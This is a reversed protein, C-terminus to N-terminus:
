RGSPYIPSWSHDVMLRTPNQSTVACKMEGILLLNGEINFTVGLIKIETAYVEELGPIVFGKPVVISGSSGTVSSEYGDKILRTSGVEVVEFGNDRFGRYEVKFYSEETGPYDVLTAKTTQASELIAAAAEARKKSVYGPVFGFWGVIIASVVVITAVRGSMIETRNM